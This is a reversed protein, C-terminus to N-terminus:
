QGVSAGSPCVMVRTEATRYDRTWRGPYDERKGVVDTKSSCRLNRRHGIQGDMSAPMTGSRLTSGDFPANDELWEDTELKYTQLAERPM